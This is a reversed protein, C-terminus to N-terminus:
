GILNILILPPNFIDRDVLTMDKIHDLIDGKEKPTAQSLLISEMEGRLFNSAPMYYGNRYIFIDREKTDMTKISYQGILYKATAYRGAEKNKKHGPRLSDINISEGPIIEGARRRKEISKISEFTTQLEREPLPDAITSNFSVIAPWLDEDWKKEPTYLLLKGVFSAIASNRGDGEKM